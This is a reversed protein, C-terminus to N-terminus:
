AALRGYKQWRANARRQSAAYAPDLWRRLSAVDEIDFEDMIAELSWGMGAFILAQHKHDLNDFGPTAPTVHLLGAKELQPRIFAPDNLKNSRPRLIDKIHYYVTVKSVGFEVALDRPNGGELYQARLAEIREPAM